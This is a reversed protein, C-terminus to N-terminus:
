VLCSMKLALDWSGSVGRAEPTTSPIALLLLWTASAAVLGFARKVGDYWSIVFVFQAM